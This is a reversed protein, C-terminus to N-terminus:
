HRFHRMGTFVMPIKYKNAVAIIKEDQISGGPQIIATVGMKAAQIVADEKPFFADSALVSGKALAGSKRGSLYVSDVRSMQGAGIGVTRTGRCLVIANSKVHKAIKWAFLLSEMQKKTPKKKTVVKLAKEDLVQTDEDQVLLGGRVRKIDLQIGAGGMEPLELLRLNKKVKLTELAAPDFGPCVVCELFGSAAIAKALAPDVRRNIGIIGGFASLEDCKWAEKYAKLIDSNTAAGCPNNHKLFVVAPGSFERVINVAANIDLINNFSLEKGWLQKMRALGTDGAQVYFAAKQHPNEGYRMAQVKKFSFTLQDPFEACSRTGASGIAGPVACSRTAANGKACAIQGGLFKHIAADYLSTRAYVEAGFRASLAPSFAGNNKELEAIVEGYQAPDSVVLVSRSNKAASRLMSPGGIDINEVAEDLAVGPKSVTKEFPYLNVVVMDILGIANDALTKMHGPNDRLALLGGHVKPHLTKVRGDLMEPFGTYDSVETVPIGNAALLKATGGTSLIQVGYKKLTRGLEVIGSKDSVSVLARTVKIM